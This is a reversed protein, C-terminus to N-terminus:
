KSPPAALCAKIFDNRQSGVLKKTRADKVCATRKLHKEAAASQAAVESASSDAPASAPSAPPRDSQSIAPQVALLVVGLGIARATEGFRM